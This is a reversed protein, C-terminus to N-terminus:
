FPLNLLFGPDQDSFRITGNVKDTSKIGVKLTRSICCLPHIECRGVEQFSKVANQMLSLHWPGVYHPSM